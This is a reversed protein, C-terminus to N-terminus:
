IDGIRCLPVLEHKRAIEEPVLKAAQDAIAIKRLDEVVPVRFDGALFAALDARKVHPTSELVYALASGKLGGDAIAKRLEEHTVVGEAILLEGIREAEGAM